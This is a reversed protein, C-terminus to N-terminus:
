GLKRAVDHQQTDRLADIFHPVRDDDRTRLVELLKAVKQYTTM